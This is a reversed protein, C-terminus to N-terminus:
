AGALNDVGTALTDATKPNSHFVNEHGSAESWWGQMKGILLLYKSCEMEKGLVTQIPLLLKSRVSNWTEVLGTVTPAGLVTKPCSLLLTEYDKMTKGLYLVIEGKLAIRCGSARLWEPVTELGIPIVTSKGVNLKAGSIREYLRVSNSLEEFSDAEAKIMVGSDYAFFQHLIQKQGSIPLGQLRGEEAREQLIMMLPQTTTAFLMPALPCGQRVGRGLEFEPSFMGMAHLKSTSGDVLGKTMGIFEEAIGLAKRQTKSLVSRLMARDQESLDEKKYLSSYFRHIEKMIDQEKTIKTGDETRLVTIEEKVRKAKLVAFFFKSPVDGERIWRHRNWKKWTAEQSKELEKIEAEIREMTDNPEHSMNNAVRIRARGLEELKENAKKRELRSEKKKQVLLRKANTWKWDWNKRPDEGPSGGEQWLKRMLENDEPAKVLESSFKFYTGKRRGGANRHLLSLHVPRHDSLKGRVDHKMKVVRENWAECQSFYIRDLRAQDLRDNVKQQHLTIARRQHHYWGAM